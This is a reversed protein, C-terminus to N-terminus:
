LEFLIAIIIVEVNFAELLNSQLLELLQDTHEHREGLQPLFIQVENAGLHLMECDLIIFAHDTDTTAKDRDLLVVVLICGFLTGIEELSQLPLLLGKVLDDEIQELGILCIGVHNLGVTRLTVPVFSVLHKDDDRGEEFLLGLLVVEGWPLSYHGFLFVKLNISRGSRRSTRSVEVSLTM